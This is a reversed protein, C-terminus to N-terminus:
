GAPRLLATREMRAPSRAPSERSARLLGATGPLAQAPAARGTLSRWLRRLPGPDFTNLSEIASPSSNPVAPASESKEITQKRCRLRTM